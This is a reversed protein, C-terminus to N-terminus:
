QSNSLLYLDAQGGPKAFVITSLDSSFDYPDRALEEPLFKLAILRGLRVDEARYVVGMGRGGLRELIRYHSVILGIVGTYKVM